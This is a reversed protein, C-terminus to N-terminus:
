GFVDPSYRAVVEESRHGDPSLGQAVLWRYTKDFDSSAYKVWPKWRPVTIKRELKPALRAIEEPMELM